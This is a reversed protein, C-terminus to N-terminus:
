IGIWLLWEAFSELGCFCIWNVGGVSRDMEKAEM